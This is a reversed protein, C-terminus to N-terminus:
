KLEMEEEKEQYFDLESVEKLTINTSHVIVLTSYKEIINEFEANANMYRAVPDEIYFYPYKSDYDDMQFDSPNSINYGNKYLATMFQNYEEQNKIHVAIKTNAFKQLDKSFRSEEYVNASYTAKTLPHKEVADTIANRIRGIGYKNFNENTVEVTVEYRLIM